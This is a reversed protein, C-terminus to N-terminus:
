NSYIWFAQTALNQISKIFGNNDENSVDATYIHKYEKEDFKATPMQKRAIKRGAVLALTKLNKGSYM